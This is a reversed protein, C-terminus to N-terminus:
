AARGLGARRAAYARCAEGFAAFIQKSVPSDAYKYEPHWQVGIVFEAGNLRVAEIQGDPATAEASLGPALRDIGQGHLSNVLIEGCGTLDQLWGGESLAIAHVPAYQTTLPDAPNSRHDSRGAVNHVEQHLTGKLAVNLEQMGRCIALIPLGRGIARRIMPLTTADRAPDIPNNEPPPPGDYHQPEVNSPSGTLLLGDLRDLLDDIPLDAGFAPILLPLADAGGLVATIYKEGVVHYISQKIDNRCCTLGILPRMGAASM